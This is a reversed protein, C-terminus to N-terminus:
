KGLSKYKEELKGLEDEALHMKDMEARVVKEPANSIFANNGLKGKLALIYSRKEDILLSIRSLEEEKKEEDIHADVYLEIGGTVGYAYGLGKPSKTEISLNAV